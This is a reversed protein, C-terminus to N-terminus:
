GGFIMWAGLGFICLDVVAHSVFGPWVSRYRMYMASWVAGGIFVGISCLVVALPAFYVQLAIVHHLTFCAASAVVAAPRVLFVECKQVCFWRWVYEELVSNVLIWYAAGGIYHAPTALGIARIREVVFARDILKEGLLLFAGAILASIGLGSLVAMGFGGHRPPSLSLPERDVTLRWVVPLGFLWLKSAAFCLTSSAVWRITM